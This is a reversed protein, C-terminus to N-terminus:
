TVTRHRGRTAHHAPIGPLCRRPQFSTKVKRYLYDETKLLSLMVIRVTRVGQQSARARGAMGTLSRWGPGSQTCLDLVVAIPQDRGPAVVPRCAIAGRFKELRSALAKRCQFVPPLLVAECERLLSGAHNQQNIPFQM